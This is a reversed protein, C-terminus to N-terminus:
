HSKWKNKNSYVYIVQWLAAVSQTILSALAAGSAQWFPILLSNALVNTIITFLAIKNLVGLNNSATLLSGYLYSISVPIVSWMLLRFVPASADHHQNYLLYIIEKGYFFAIFATSFSFLLLLFSSLHLLPFINKKKSQMRAFMPLLIGAFLFAVMSAADLIRYSQAYIGAQIAGEPLIRELMIADIRTYATMLLVLIAYPFSQKLIAISIIPKLSPRCTKKRNQLYFYAFLISISYALSQAYFLWEIHFIQHLPSYWLLFSMFIILLLKDIISLFSDAFFHQLASVNSRLFLLISVLIQNILLIFLWQVALNKYGIFLAISLSLIFYFAALVFKTALLRPFYKTFLHPYVAITRNNFNTIGLDLIAQFLLTFNFLAFYLGYNETGVINQVHRDIGFIWFPKILGNLFLLFFINIIFKKRM